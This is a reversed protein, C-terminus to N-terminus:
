ELSIELDRRSGHEGWPGDGVEPGLCDGLDFEFGQDQGEFALRAIADGLVEVDTLDGDAFAEAGDVFFEL